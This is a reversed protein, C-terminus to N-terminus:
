RYLQRKEYVNQYCILYQTKTLIHRILYKKDYFDLVYGVKKRSSGQTRFEVIDGKKYKM